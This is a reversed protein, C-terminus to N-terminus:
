QCANNVKRLGVVDHELYPHDCISLMYYMVSPLLIDRVVM